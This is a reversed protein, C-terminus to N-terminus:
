LLINNNNNNNNNNDDYEAEVLKQKNHDARFSHPCLFLGLTTSTGFLM